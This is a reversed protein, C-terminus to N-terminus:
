SERLVFVSVADAGLAVAIGLPAFIATLPIFKVVVLGVGGFHVIKGADGLLLLRDRFKGLQQMLSDGVGTPGGSADLLILKFIAPANRLPLGAM